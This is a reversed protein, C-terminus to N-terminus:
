GPFYSLILEISPKVAAFVSDRNGSPVIDYGRWLLERNQSDVVDLVFLQQNASLSDIPLNQFFNNKTSYFYPLEPLSEANPPLYFFYVATEAQRNRYEIGRGELQFRLERAIRDELGQFKFLPNQSSEYLGGGISFSSIHMVETSPGPAQQTDIPPTTGCGTLLILAASFLAARKFIRIDSLKLM